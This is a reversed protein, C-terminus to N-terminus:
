LSLAWEMGLPEFIHRHVYGAFDEGSIREVIYGALAVGWNSYATVTGPAYIQEPEHAKLADELSRVAGPDKVFLDAYAEQFGANHNMLHTITVPAGYRLNTLFDAPLYERIDADLDIKGQEWLQMVSIWVRSKTASGWSM